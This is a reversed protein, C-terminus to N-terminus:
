NADKIGIHRGWIKKLKGHRSNSGMLMCSINHYCMNYFSEFKKAFKLLICSRVKWTLSGTPSSYISRDKIIHVIHEMRSFWYALGNTGSQFKSEIHSEGFVLGLLQDVKSCLKYDLNSLYITVFVIKKWNSM